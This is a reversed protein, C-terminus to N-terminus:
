GVVNVLRGPVVVVKKPARDGLHKRVADLALAAERLSAEDADAAVDLDARKKGNVQVVIRVTDAVLLAADAVPWPAYAISEAHGLKQWLEEALHPALPSLLLALTEAAARPVAEGAKAIDRVFVMLKSIATNFRMAELDETVGHITQATLRQQEESGSGQALPRLRDEDDLVLKFARDLFRRVGQIGDTSWPADKDLPGIFMEYLRMSDAGYQEIVDDPNVVNGRSKSMKEVVEELVLGEITPHVPTGDPLRRVDRLPVWRSKVARGDGQAVFGEGDARVHTHPYIRADSRGEDAVDDDFYRYSYGLIM